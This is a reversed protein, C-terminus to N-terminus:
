SEHLVTNGIERSTTANADSNGLASPDTHLTSVQVNGIAQTPRRQMHLAVGRSGLCPDRLDFDPPDRQIVRSDM